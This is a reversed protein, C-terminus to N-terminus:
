QNKAIKLIVIIRYIYFLSMVASFLVLYSEFAYNNYYAYLIAALSLVFMILQLAFSLKQKEFATHIITLPSAIFKFMFFPMLCKAYIGSVRWEEGFVFAFCDEIIFYSGGFGILSLVGLQLVMRKTLQYANSQQQKQRVADELFVQQNKFKVIGAIGCM